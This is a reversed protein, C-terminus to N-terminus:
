PKRDERTVTWGVGRVNRVADAGLKARVRHILYDIANSEVENGWGYVRHELEERSLIIGPRTMLARIVAFERRSLAVEEGDALWARHSAVDLSVQGNSLVADMHDAGRRRLVARIRAMLEDAEFPKVLYDDAGLDLGTIRSEVESRATVVLVPTDDGRGRLKALFGAGDLGPLGLDLLVVDYAHTLMSELGPQARRVWDVAYADDELRGVLAAGVMLDDEVLLIRM